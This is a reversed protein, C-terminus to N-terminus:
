LTVTDVYVPEITSIILLYLSLDVLYVMTENEPLGSRPIKFMGLDQFGITDDVQFLGLPTRTECTEGQFTM